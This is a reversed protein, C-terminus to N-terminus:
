TVVDVVKGTRCDVLVRYPHMHEGEPIQFTIVWCLVSRPAFVWFTKLPDGIYTFEKRSEYTDTPISRKTAYKKAVQVAELESINEETSEPLYFPLNAIMEVRGTAVEVTIRVMSLCGIDKYSREIWISWTGDEPKEPAGDPPSSHDAPRYTVFKEDINFRLGDYERENFAGTAILSEALSLVDLKSVPADPSPTAPMNMEHGLGAFKGYNTLIGSTTFRLFTTDELVTEYEGSMSSRGGPLLEPALATEPAIGLIALLPANHEWHGRQELLERITHAPPLPFLQYYLGSSKGFRYGAVLVVLVLLLPVLRKRNRTLSNLLIM